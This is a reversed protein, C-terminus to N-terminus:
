AVNERVLHRTHPRGSNKKNTEVIGGSLIFKRIISKLDGTFQECVWDFSGIYPYSPQEFIWTRAQRRVHREINKANCDAMARFLVDKWLDHEPFWNPDDDRYVAHISAVVFDPLESAM